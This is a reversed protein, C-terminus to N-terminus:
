VLHGSPEIAENRPKPLYANGGFTSFEPLPRERSELGDLLPLSNQPTSCVPPTVTAPNSPVVVRFPSKGTGFRGSHRGLTAAPGILATNGAPRSFHHHHTPPAEGGGELHHAGGLHRLHPLHNNVCDKDHLDTEAMGDNSYYEATPSNPYSISSGIQSINYGDGLTQIYAQRRLEDAYQSETDERETAFAITSKSLPLNHSSFGIERAQEVNYIGGIHETLYTSAAHPHYGEDMMGHVNPVASGRDGPSIFSGSRESIYSMTEESMTDNYCSTGQSGTFGDQVSPKGSTDSSFSRSTSTGKTRRKHVLCTILVVSLLLLLTACVGVSITVIIPVSQSSTDTLGDVLPQNKGADTVAELPTTYESEGIDNLSQIAFKYKTSPKLGTIEISSVNIPDAFHVRGEPYLSLSAAAYYKVRFMQHSGGGFGPVWRIAVSDSASSVVTVESPMDPRSPTDLTVQQYSVGMTNRAACEYIGYDAPNIDLVDFQSEWTLPDIMRHQVQYKSGGALEGTQRRWTFTINPSGQARCFLHGTDRNAAAAKRLLPSEDMIPKHKVLLFTEAATEEGYGNSVKCLIKGADQVTVNRIILRSLVRNGGMDDWDISIRSSSPSFQIEKHSNRKQRTWRIGDYMVPNADFSCEFMADEKPDLLLAGTVNTIKPSFLVDLKITTVAMGESNNAKITYTGAHARSVRALHLFGGNFWVDAGPDTAIHIRSDKEWSYDLKNPSASATVNLVFPEGEIVEVPSSVSPFEPKYAIELTIADLAEGIDNIARCTYVDGDDRSKVRVTLSSSTTKGGYNGKRFIQKGASLVEGRLLWVLRAPPYAEGSECSLTAKEGMRLTSPQVLINVFSPAFQVMMRISEEKPEAMVKSSAVCKYAAGNDTMNVMLDLTATAYNEGTSYDSAIEQGSRYWKITALPNGGASTCMIRRMSGGKLVEGETYGTIKPAEPAYLVSLTHSEVKTVAVEQNVAHCQIHINKDGPEVRVSINTKTKWGGSESSFKRTHNGQVARGDVVWWIEVPPNSNSTSCEFNLEDGQVAETPGSITVDKPGYQVVTTLSSELPKLILDNKAQCSYLANNDEETATFEYTNKSGNQVTTYSSDVREGNRYWTITALPNGGRSVCVLTVTDGKKLPEKDSYGEIQPQGPPYQVFMKVSARLPTSQLAPHQAECAINALNDSATPKFRLISTVTTREPLGGKDDSDERRGSVFEEDGRYWIIDPRPRANHVRCVLEVEEQERVVLEEEARYGVLEAKTPPLLVNLKANARIPKNTGNPGVQCEYVAEDELSAEVIQLNFVGSEDSGLVSYRPFGPLDRYYGLTLGDKTWQVRGGLDGIVCTLIARGGEPVFSDGPTTRFFQQRPGIGAIATFSSSLLFVLNASSVTM